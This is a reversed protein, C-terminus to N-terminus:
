LTAFKTYNETSKKFVEQMNKLNAEQINWIKQNMEQIEALNFNKNIKDFSSLKVLNDQYSFSEQYLKKYFNVVLENQEQFSKQLNIFTNNIKQNQTQFDKIFNDLNQKQNNKEM